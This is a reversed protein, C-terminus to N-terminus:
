PWLAYSFFLGPIENTSEVVKMMVVKTMEIELKQLM